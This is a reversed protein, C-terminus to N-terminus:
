GSRSSTAAIPGPVIPKGLEDPWTTLVEDRIGHEDVIALVAQGGICHIPTSDPFSKVTRRRQAEIVTLGDVRVDFSVPDEVEAPRGLLNELDNGGHLCWLVQALSYPEYAQGMWGAHTDCRYAEPRRRAWSWLAVGVGFEHRDGPWRADCAAKHDRLVGPLHGLMEDQTRAFIRLWREALDQLDMGGTGTIAAIMRFGEITFTKPGFRRVTGDDDYWATDNLIYAADRQRFLNMATM